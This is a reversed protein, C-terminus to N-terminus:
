YLRKGVSAELSAVKQTMVRDTGLPVIELEAFM